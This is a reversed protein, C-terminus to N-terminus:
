DSESHKAVAQYRDAASQHLVKVREVLELPELVQSHPGYGLVWWVIEDLGEVECHFTISGDDQYDIMQTDHWHTEAVTDAFEADFQIAVRYLPGGPMMRWAKGLYKRISFDDPIAFPKDTLECRTFRGLRLCRLQCHRGHWGVVYWARQGFFLCYPKFLFPRRDGNSGSQASEYDCRLMRRNAIAARVTEYVDRPLDNGESAALRIEMHPTVADIAEHFQRPIHGRMKEIARLSPGTFPVQEHQGIQEGLVILSLAEELTVHVPPIFFDKRVRYGDTDQDFLVPVGAAELQKLDRYINRETTGCKKSLRQANWGSQSQIIALIQLLRHIRTYQRSVSSVGSHFVAATYRLLAGFMQKSDGMKLEKREVPDM